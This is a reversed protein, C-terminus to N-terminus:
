KKDENEEKKDENKGEQAKNQKKWKMYDAQAQLEKLDEEDLGTTDVGGANAHPINKLKEPNRINSKCLLYDLSCNFINCMQLKVEDSPLNSGNEYNAISSKGKVSKLKNALQEQTLNLETRLQKIRAGIQKKLDIENM